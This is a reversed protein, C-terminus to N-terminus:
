ALKGIDSDKALAVVPRKQRGVTASRQQTKDM